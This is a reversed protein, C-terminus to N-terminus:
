AVESKLNKNFSGKVGEWNVVEKEAKLGLFEMEYPIIASFPIEIESNNKMFRGQKGKKCIYYHFEKGNVLSDVYIRTPQESPWSAMKKIEVNYNSDVIDNAGVGVKISVNASKAAELVVPQSYNRGLLIACFSNVWNLDLLSVFGHM